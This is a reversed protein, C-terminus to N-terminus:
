SLLRVLQAHFALPGATLVIMVGTAFGWWHRRLGLHATLLLLLLIAIGGGIWWALPGRVFIYLFGGIVAGAM